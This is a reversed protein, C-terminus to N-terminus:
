GIVKSWDMVRVIVQGERDPAASWQHQLHNPSHRSSYSPGRGKYTKPAPEPAPTARGHEDVRKKGDALARRVREALARDWTARLLVMPTLVLASPDPQNLDAPPTDATPPPPEARSPPPPPTRDRMREFARRARRDSLERLSVKDGTEPDILRTTVVRAITRCPRHGFGLPRGHRPAERSLGCRRHRCAARCAESGGAPHHSAGGPSRGKIPERGSGARRDAKSDHWRGSREQPEHDTSRNSLDCGPCLPCRDRPWWCRGFAARGNGNVQEININFRGLATIAGAGRVSGTDGAGAGKRFHHIICTHIHKERTVYRIIKLVNHMEGNDNENVGQSLEVLPDYFVFDIKRDSIETVLTKYLATPEIKKDTPDKTILNIYPHVLVMLRDGIDARTIGAADASRLAADMRRAQEDADDEANIMLVRYAQKPVWPGFSKGSALSVGM